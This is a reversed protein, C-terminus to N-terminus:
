SDGIIEEFDATEESFDINKKLSIYDPRKKDEPPKVEFVTSKKIHKRITGESFIKREKAKELLDTM